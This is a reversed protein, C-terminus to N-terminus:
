ELVYTAVRVRNCMGEPGPSDPHAVALRRHYERWSAEFAEQDAGQWVGTWSWPESVAEVVTAGDDRFEVDRTQVPVMGSWSTFLGEEVMEDFLPAWVSAVYERFVGMKEAPCAWQEVRAFGPQPVTPGVTDGPGMGEPDPSTGATMLCVLIAVAVGGRLMGDEPAGRLWGRGPDARM